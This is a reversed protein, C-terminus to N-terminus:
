FVIVSGVVNGSVPVTIYGNGSGGNFSISSLSGASGQKKVRSNTFSVFGNNNIVADAEISFLMDEGTNETRINIELGSFNTPNAVNFSITSGQTAPDITFQGVNDITFSPGLRKNLPAIVNAYLTDTITINGVVRVQSNLAGAGAKNPDVIFVNAGAANVVTVQGNATLISSGSTAVSSSDTVLAIEGTSPDKIFLNGFTVNDTNALSQNVVYKPASGPQGGYHMPVFYVNGNLNTNVDADDFGIFASPVQVNALNNDSNYGWFKMGIGGVVDNSTVSVVSGDPNAISRNQYGLAQDFKRGLESIPDQIYVSEENVAYVTGKSYINGTFSADGNVTLVNTAYPDIIISGANVNGLISTKGYIETFNSASNTANSIQLNASINTGGTVFLDGYYTERFQNNFTAM